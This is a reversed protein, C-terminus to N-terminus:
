PKGLPHAQAPAATLAADVAAILALGAVREVNQMVHICFSSLTM